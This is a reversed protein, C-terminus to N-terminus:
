SSLVITPCLHLCPLSGHYTADTSSTIVGPRLSYCLPQPFALVAKEWQMLPNVSALRTIALPFSAALFGEPSPKLSKRHSNTIYANVWM